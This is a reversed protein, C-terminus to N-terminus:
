GTGDRRGFVSGLGAWGTLGRFLMEAAVLVPIAFFGKHVVIGLACGALVLLAAVIQGARGPLTSGTSDPADLELPLGLAHWAVMGGAVSQAWHFGVDELADLIQQSRGGSQCIFYIPKADSERSWEAMIEHITMTGLPINCAQAIHGQEFERTGRLDILVTQPDTDLQECLEQVSVTKIM